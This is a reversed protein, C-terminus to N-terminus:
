HAIGWLCEALDSPVAKAAEMSRLLAGHSSDGFPDLGFADRAVTEHLDHGRIRLFWNPYTLGAADDGVFSITTLGVPDEDPPFADHPPMVGRAEAAQKLETFIWDAAAQLARHSVVDPTLVDSLSGLQLDRLSPPAAKELRLLHVCLTVPDLLYNEIASRPLRHVRPPLEQWQNDSDLLGYFSGSDTFTKLFKKVAGTGGGGPTSTESTYSRTVPAFVLNGGTLSPSDPPKITDLVQAVKSYFDNDGLDEVIVYKTYPSVIFMGKSLLGAAEMPESERIGSEDMVFVSGRPAVAVASPNHTTVITKIGLEKVIKERIFDMVQRSLDPHLHADVEDILLLLPTNGTARALYVASVIGIQTREGSSLDKPYIKAGGNMFSLAYKQGLGTGIAPQSVRYHSEVEALLENLGDWPPVVSDAENTSIEEGLHKLLLGRRYKQFYLTLSDFPNTFVNGLDESEADIISISRVGGTAQLSDKILIVNKSDLYQPNTDAESIDVYSISSGFLYENAGTLMQQHIVLSQSLHYAEGRTKDSAMEKRIKRITDDYNEITKVHSHYQEKDSLKLALTNLLQTKGAGNNGTIIAFDPVNEWVIESIVPHSRILKINM